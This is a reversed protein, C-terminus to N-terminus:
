DAQPRRVYRAFVYGGVAGAIGQALLGGFTRAGAVPMMGLLGELSLLAVALALGGALVYGLTRVGPLFRIVLAATPLAILFGIAVIGGFIPAMGLIDHGTAYLRDRASIEIGLDILGQLVFQTSLASALVSAVVVALVFAAIRRIWSM